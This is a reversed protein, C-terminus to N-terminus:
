KGATTNASSGAATANLAKASAYIADGERYIEKLEDLTKPKASLKRLQDQADSLGTLGDDAQLAPPTTGVIAMSALITAGDTRSAWAQRDALDHSGAYIWSDRLRDTEAQVVLRSRNLEAVRAQAGANIAQQTAVFGATNAQQEAVKTSLQSALNRMAATDACGVLGLASFAAAIAISRSM